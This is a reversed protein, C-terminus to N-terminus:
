NVREFHIRLPFYQMVPLDAWSAYDNYTNSLFDTPEFDRVTLELIDKGNEIFVRMGIQASRIKQKTPSFFVNAASLQVVQMKVAPFPFSQEILRETVEGKDTLTATRFYNKLDGTMQIALGSENIIIQDNSNFKPLDSANDGSFAMNDILWNKNVFGKYKWTGKLRTFNSGAITITTKNFNGAVYHNNGPAVKLVILTKGAEQKLFKLKLKGQLKGAPIVFEKPGDFAYHVGEVATTGTTVEVPIKLDTPSVFSGEAATLSLNIDASETMTATQSEFTYILIDKPGISVETFLLNGSNVGSPITGLNVKFSKNLDFSAKTTVKVEGVRGGAPIVFADASLEYDTGKVATGSLTFPVTIAASVPATTAVKIILEGSQPISYTTTEFELVNGRKSLEDDKGCSVLAVASIIIAAFTNRFKLLRNNNFM